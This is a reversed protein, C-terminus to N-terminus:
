IEELFKTLIAVVRDLDTFQPTHQAPLVELQGGLLRAMKRGNALPTYDDNKGWILLTSLGARGIEALETELNVSLLDQMTQKMIDDAQEYDHERILRYFVKRLGPNNGVLKKGIKSIPKAVVRKLVKLPRRDPLGASGILVVGRAREDLAEALYKIVIRGGNSHGALVFNKKGALEGKLWSVYDELRWPKALKEGTLGPVLLLSAKFGLEGLEDLLPNWRYHDYTWGPLFVIEPSDGGRASIFVNKPPEFVTKGTYSLRKKDWVKGRRVLKKEDSKKELLAEVAMELSQSGKFLIAEGGKIQRYIYNYAEETSVFALPEVGAGSLVPATFRAVRRGILLVKQWKYKLIAEGLERHVREEETGAELIDAIVLWKDKAPYNAFMEMMVTAALLSSNYSSDVLVTDKIGALLSSRGPAIKLNTFDPDFDHSFIETLRHAFVISLWVAKPTLTPLQATFERLKFHTGDKLIKYDLLMEQKSYREIVVGSRARGLEGAIAQDDGDTVVLEKAYEVFWGYDHAIAKGVGKKGKFKEAHTETSNLWFVISPRLLKALFKGEHLRDTDCEAVYVEERPPSSFARFPARIIFVLWELWLFSSRKLGLIDFPIGFASNADHSYKATEGLQAEVLGFATTKGTSGTIVVMKPRWRRLMIGAWFAFYGAVLFYLRGKVIHLGKRM